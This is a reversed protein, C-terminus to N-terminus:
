QKDHTIYQIACLNSDNVIRLAVKRDSLQAALLTSYFADGAADSLNFSLYVGSEANCDLKTEDGSTAVYVLGGINTYLREVYVDTCIHPECDAATASAFASIFLGVFCKKMVPYCIKLRSFKTKKMKQLNFINMFNLM